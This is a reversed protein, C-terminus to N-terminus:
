KHEHPPMSALAAKKKANKGAGGAMSPNKPARQAPAKKKPNKAIGEVTSPRKPAPQAKAPKPLKFKQWTVVPPKGEMLPAVERPRVNYAILTLEQVLANMRRPQSMMFKENIECVKERMSKIVAPDKPLAEMIKTANVAFSEPIRLVAGNWNIIEQFPLTLGDSIIVPVVCAGVVEALRYSWRGDGRPVLGFATNSLLLNFRDADSEKAGSHFVTTHDTFEVAVDKQHLKSFAEKLKQRPSTRWNTESSGRFVLKYKTDAVPRVKGNSSKFFSPAPVTVGQFPAWTDDYLVPDRLDNSLWIFDKRERLQAETKFNICTLMKGININFQTCKDGGNPAVAIGHMFLVYAMGRPRVPLSLLLEVDTTGVFVFDAASPETRVIEKATMFYNLVGEWDKDVGKSFFWPWKTTSSTAGSSNLVIFSVSAMGNKKAPYEVREESQRDPKDPLLGQSVPTGISDEQIASSSLPDELSHSGQDFVDKLLLMENSMPPSSSPAEDLRACSGDHFFWAVLSAQLVYPLSVM